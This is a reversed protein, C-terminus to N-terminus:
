ALAEVGAQIGGNGGRVADFGGAEDVVTDALEGGPALGHELCVAFGDAFMELREPAGGIMETM